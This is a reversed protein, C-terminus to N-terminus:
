VSVQRHYEKCTCDSDGTCAQETNLVHDKTNAVMMTSTEGMGAATVRKPYLIDVEKPTCYRTGGNDTILAEISAQVLANAIRLALSKDKYGV